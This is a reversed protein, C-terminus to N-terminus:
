DWLGGDWERSGVGEGIEWGGMRSGEGEMEDWGVRGRATPYPARVAAAATIMLPWVM